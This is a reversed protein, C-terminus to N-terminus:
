RYCIMGVHKFVSTKTVNGDQDVTEISVRKSFSYRPTVGADELANELITMFWPAGGIMAYQCGTAKAIKAIEGANKLMEENTPMEDFTLLRRVESAIEPPLDIVGDLRQEPTANHQTLNIITEM